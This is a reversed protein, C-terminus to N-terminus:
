QKMTEVFQTRASMLYRWVINANCFICVALLWGFDWWIVGFTFKVSICESIMFFLCCFFQFYCPSLIAIPVLWSLSLLLAIVIALAYQSNMVHSLEIHQVRLMWRDFDYWQEISRAHGNTRHVYVTGNSKPEIKICGTMENAKCM